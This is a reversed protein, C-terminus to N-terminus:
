PEDVAFEAAAEVQVSEHLEATQQTNSGVQANRKHRIRDDPQDATCDASKRDPYHPRPREALSGSRYAAATSCQEGHKRKGTIYAARATGRERAENRVAEAAVQM